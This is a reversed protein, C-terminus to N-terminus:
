QGAKVESGEQLLRLEVVGEVRARVQATRDAHLRGPLDQTLTANGTAVTILDVEPPPMGACAAGLTASKDKGGCGTRLAILLLTPVFSKALTNMFFRQPTNPHSAFGRVMRRCYFVLTDFAQKFHLGTFPGCIPPMNQCRRRKAYQEHGTM